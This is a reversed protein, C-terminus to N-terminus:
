ENPVVVHVSTWLRPTSLALRRWASCIQCLLLPSEDSAIIPNRHSPLCAVFIDRVIDGPLRRAPSIMAMHAAIFGDLADRKEALEDILKQMRSIEDSLEASERRSGAVFDSIRKCDLDSPVANTHLINNFPSSQM